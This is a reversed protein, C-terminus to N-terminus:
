IPAARVAQTWGRVWLQGAGDHQGAESLLVTKGNAEHSGSSTRLGPRGACRPLDPIRLGRLRRGTCHRVGGGDLIRRRVQRQVCLDHMEVICERRSLSLDTWRSSPTCCPQPSRLVAVNRESAVDGRLVSAWRESACVTTHPDNMPGVARPAPTLLFCFLQLAPASPNASDISLRYCHTTVRELGAVRALLVCSIKRSTSLPEKPDRCRFGETSTARMQRQMGSVPEYM